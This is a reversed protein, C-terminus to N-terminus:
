FVVHVPIAAFDSDLHVSGKHLESLSFFWHELKNLHM